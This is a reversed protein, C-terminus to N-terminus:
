NRGLHIPFELLAFDERNVDVKLTIIADDTIIETLRMLENTGISRGMM